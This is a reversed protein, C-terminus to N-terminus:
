FRLLVGIHNQLFQVDNNFSQHHDMGLEFSLMSNVKYNVGVGANAGFENNGKEPIYIGPGVGLYASFPYSFPWYYRLNTFINIWYNDAIGVTKSKFDNYGILAVLAWKDSFHYGIDAMIKLGPDFNNAFTGSPISYGGHLSLSLRYEIPKIVDKVFASEGLAIELEYTNSNPSIMEAGELSTKWKKVPADHCVVYGYAGVPDVIDYATENIILQKGTYRYGHVTYNLCSTKKDGKVKTNNDKKLKLYDTNTKNDSSKSMETKSVKLLIRHLTDGEPPLGFSYTGITAYRSFESASVIEMNTYRSKNIINVGSPADLEAMICNHFKGNNQFSETEMYQRVQGGNPQDNLKWYTYFEKNNGNGDIIDSNISEGNSDNAISQWENGLGWNAIKFIAKVGSVPDPYTNTVNAFLKNTHSNTYNDWDISDGPDDFKIEHDYPRNDTYIDAGSEILIGQCNSTLGKHALGFDNSFHLQEYINGTINPAVEPWTFETVTISENNVKCVNFYFMFDDNLGVWNVGDGTTPIKLEVYWKDTEKRNALSISNINFYTPPSSLNLQDFRCCNIVPEPTVNPYIVILISERQKEAIDTYNKQSRFALIIADEADPIDTVEFSLYIHSNSRDKLAQFIVENEETGNEFKVKFAQNWGLDNEVRGDIIPSNPATPLAQFQPFCIESRQILEWSTSGINTGSVSPNINYSSYCSSMDNCAGFLLGGSDLTLGNPISTGIWGNSDGQDVDSIMYQFQINITEEPAMYVKDPNLQAYSKEFQYLLLPFICILIISHINELIVNKKNM